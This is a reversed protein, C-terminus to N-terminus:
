EPPLLAGEQDIKRNVDVAKDGPLARMYPRLYPRGKAGTVM